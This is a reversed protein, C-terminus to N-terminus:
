RYPPKRPNFTKWIGSGDMSIAGGEHLFIEGTPATVPLGIRNAVDQAFSGDGSGTSCSNLQVSRYLVNGQTLKILNSLSDSSFGALSSPSGHGGISYVGPFESTRQDYERELSGIPTLSLQSLGSPDVYNLPNQGVYSYLNTDGGEFGIPDKATWRGVVPDYDRAGFRIMKTDWDTLGSVFGLPQLPTNIASGSVVRGVSTDKLVNGYEDYMIEQAITGDLGVLYRIDGKWTPVVKFYSNGVLVYSPAISHTGYIYTTMQGLRNRITALRTQDYWTYREDVEGNVLRVVRRNFADHKYSIVKGDPLTVSKLNGFFDYVFKKEGLCNSIKSLTGDPNYEFTRQIAGQLKLLRDQSGYSAITRKGFHEYSKINNNSQAGFTYEAVPRRQIQRISGNSNHFEEEDIQILRNNADYLLHQSVNDQNIQQNRKLSKRTSVTINGVEDVKEQTEVDLSGSSSLIQMHISRLAPDEGPVDSSILSSTTVLSSRLSSVVQQTARQGGAVVENSDSYSYTEEGAQVIRGLEDYGFSLSSFSNNHNVSSVQRLSNLSYTVSGESNSSPDWWRQVVINEDLYQTRFEIGDPSIMTWPRGLADVDQYLYDGDPTSVREIHATGSKYYITAIGRGPKTITKVRGDLDYTYTTAGNEGAFIPPLYSSVQDLLSQQFQHIEGGPTTLKKLSGSPNYEFGIQDGNPLTKTLVKGENDRSYQTVRNKADRESSLYGRGDYFFQYVSSGQRNETVQGLHNYSLVQDLSGPKQIRSIREKSDYYVKGLLVNDQLFSYSRDSGQFISRRQVTPSISIESDTQLTRINFPGEGLNYIVSRNNVTQSFQSFPTTSAEFRRKVSQVQNGFRLDDEYDITTRMDGHVIFESNGFNTTKTSQIVNGVSDYQAYFTDATTRDNVTQTIRGEATGFGIIKKLNEFSESVSQYGGTNKTEGLFLGESTHNFNTVLGSAYQIRKLLGGGDQYDMVSEAGAAGTVRNLKGHDNISLGTVVGFASQIGTPSGDSDRLIRTVLDDQDVIQDLKNDSRYIFRYKIAGLLSTRTEIHRGISDFIYVESGDEAAVLDATGTTELTRRIAAVERVAGSGLYISKTRADYYHHNTLTWGGLGWVGPKYSSIKYKRAGISTTGKLTPLDEPGECVIAGGVTGETCSPLRTPVGSDYPAKLTVEFEESDVFPNIVAAESPNWTWDFRILGLAPFNFQKSPINLGTVYVSRPVQYNGEFGYDVKITKNASRSPDFNTQYNLSYPLGSLAIQEGVSRNDLQIISGLECSPRKPIADLALTRDLTSIPSFNLSNTYHHCSGGLGTSGPIGAPGVVYCVHTVTFDAGSVQPPTTLSAYFTSSGPPYAGQMLPCQTSVRQSEEMNCRQYYEALMQATGAQGFASSVALQLGIAFLYKKAKM